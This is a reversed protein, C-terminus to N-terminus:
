AGIAWYRRWHRKMGFALRASQERGVRFGHRMSLAEECSAIAKDFEWGANVADKVFEDLAVRYGRKEANSISVGLPIGHTDLLRFAGGLGIFEDRGLM